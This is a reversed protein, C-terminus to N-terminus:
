SKVREGPLRRDSTRRRRDFNSDHSLVEQPPELPIVITFTSGKGLQSQLEVRGGHAEAIAKVIALGLGAGESRRRSNALRAFREFIRLQDAPAIGEGTDRVWFRAYGKSVASGLAIVEGAQTHQTANQALNMMAQTLRQRDAVIRTPGKADLQWDRDALAIAKAYLEETLEGMEITEVRLFDLREAKALLILDDVFRSMRDLEDMVLELTEQQEEPDDGLLELHGRIITIPTRLEHGADNIFNRQSIFAAELRDLMENLTTTLEAIEGSGKRPIRQSLDTESISRATETVLRLPALVKGAAVWALFSAVILVGLTVKIVVFVADNVEEREGATAHVVVFVGHTEGPLNVPEAIYLITGVSTEEQGQIPQTLQAWKKVLASNRQLPAPLAKPSSKYLKGNVITLLFEDDDPINRSLVNEFMAKLDDAFPQGTDPNLEKTLEQFEKVEQALSSEVRKQVQLFLIEGILLISVGTFGAILIVYWALIRTRAEWFISRWGRSENIQTM